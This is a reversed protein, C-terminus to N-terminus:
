SSLGIKCIMCIQPARFVRPAWIHGEFISTLQTKPLQLHEYINSVYKPTELFLPVGLDDMQEYPKRHNEGDM